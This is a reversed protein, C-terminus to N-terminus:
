AGRKKEWEEIKNSIVGAPITAIVVAILSGMAPLIVVTSSTHPILSGILWGAVIFLAMFPILIILHMGILRANM